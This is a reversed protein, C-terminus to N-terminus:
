CQALIKCSTKGAPTLVKIAFILRQSNQLEVAVRRRSDQINLERQPHFGPSATANMYLKSYQYSVTTSVFLSQWICRLKTVCCTQSKQSATLLVLHILIFLVLMTGTLTNTNSLLKPLSPFMFDVLVVNSPLPRRRRILNMLKGCDLHKVEM